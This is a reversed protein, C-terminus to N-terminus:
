TSVNVSSSVTHNPSHVASWIDLIHQLANLGLEVVIGFSEAGVLM